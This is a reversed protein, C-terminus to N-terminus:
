SGCRFSRLKEGGGRCLPRRAMLGDNAAESVAEWEGADTAPETM